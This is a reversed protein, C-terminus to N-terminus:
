VLELKVLERGLEKIGEVIKNAQRESPAKIGNAYQSLLSQSMGIREALAKANIVKYYEFFQKIDLQIIINDETVPKLGAHERYTNVADVVNQKLATMNEGTTGVPLNDDAAYASYGTSTKEVIFILKKM